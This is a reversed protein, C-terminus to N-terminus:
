LEKLEPTGMIYPINSLPVVGPVLDISFDIGRKPPFRPIEMFVYEFNRLVPHDEISSVKDKVAEKMHASFIHCGKRFSKKLQMASIKRIAVVRPIGQIKGQKGEEDLSIIKKNYYDLVDHHKQLWDMGILCDCSGLPIISVDVKISLGNM